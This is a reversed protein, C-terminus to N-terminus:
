VDNDRVPRYTFDQVKGDALKERCITDIQTMDLEGEILFEEMHKVSKAHIGLDKMVKKTTDGWADLVLPQTKYGIWVLWPGKAGIPVAPQSYIEKNDAEFIEFYEAVKDALLKKAAVKAQEKISLGDIVYLHRSSVNTVPIGLKNQIYNKKGEGKVDYKPDTIVRVIVPM